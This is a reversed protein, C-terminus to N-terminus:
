DFLYSFQSGSQDVGVKVGAIVRGEMMWTLFVRSVEPLMTNTLIADIM